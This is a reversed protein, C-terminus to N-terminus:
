IKCKCLLLNRKPIKVYALNQNVIGRRQSMEQEGDGRTGKVRLIGVKIDVVNWEGEWGREM